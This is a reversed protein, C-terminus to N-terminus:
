TRNDAANATGKPPPRWQGDAGRVLRPLPTGFSWYLGEPDSVIFGRTGVPSDQVPRVVRAGAAVARAFLADPEETEVHVSFAPYGETAAAITVLYANSTRGADATYLMVGGGRPWRLMAFAITDETEGDYAVVEEFGFATVLFRIAARPDRYGLNPVVPADM